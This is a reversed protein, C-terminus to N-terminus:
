EDDRVRGGGLPGRAVATYTPGTPSLHSQYLVIEFVRCRGVPILAVRDVIGRVDMPAPERFRALTLHARYPRDERPFALPALHTEVEDHVAVLDAAGRTIGIWLVRPRGAPPFAGAGTLEVEFAPVALPASVAEKVKAATAEDVEGLFRLTLHMNEPAVWSARPSARREIEERLRRGLAAAAGRVEDSLDVAIFLRM